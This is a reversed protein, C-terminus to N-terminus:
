LHYVTHAFALLSLSIHFDSLTGFVPFSIPFWVPLSPLNPASVEQKSSHGPVELM